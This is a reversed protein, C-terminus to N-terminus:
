RAYTGTLTREGIVHGEMAARVADAKPAGSLGLPADLAYLTFRYHHTGSPPCPGGYGVKGFGNTGQPPADPSESIAEPLGGTAAGTLDFLIWHVFGRADPDDVVLAFSAADEPAGEWQLAPSVDAGDCTYRRPIPGGDRFASSTLTFPMRTEKPTASAEPTATGPSAPGSTPGAVETTPAAASDGAGDGGSATPGIAITPEPTANASAGCGAALLAAVAGLMFVVAVRGSRRGGRSARDIM